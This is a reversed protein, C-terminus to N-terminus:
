EFGWLLTILRWNNYVIRFPYIPPETYYPASDQYEDWYPRMYLEMNDLVEVFSPPKEEENDAVIIPSICILMMLIGIAIIKKKM